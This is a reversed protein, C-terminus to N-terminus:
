GVFFRLAEWAAVVAGMSGGSLAVTMRKGSHHHKELRTDMRDLRDSMATLTAELTAVREGIKVM